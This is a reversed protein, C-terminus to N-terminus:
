QSGELGSMMDEQNLQNELKDLWIPREVAPNHKGHSGDHGHDVSIAGAPSVLALAIGLAMCLSASMSRMLNMIPNCIM